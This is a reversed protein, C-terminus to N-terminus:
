EYPKRLYPNDYNTQCVTKFHSALKNVAMERGNAVGNAYATSAVELMIMLTHGHTKEPFLHRCLTTGKADLLEIRWEDPGDSDYHLYPHAVVSYSKLYEDILACQSVLEEPPTQPMPKNFPMITM